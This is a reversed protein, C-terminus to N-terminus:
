LQIFKNQILYSNSYYNVDWIIITFYRPLQFKNMKMECFLFHIKIIFIHFPRKNIWITQKMLFFDDFYYNPRKVYLKM